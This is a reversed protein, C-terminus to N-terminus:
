SFFESHTVHREVLENARILWENIKEEASVKSLKLSKKGKIKKQNKQKQRKKLIRNKKQQKNNSLSLSSHFLLM